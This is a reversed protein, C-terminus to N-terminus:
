AFLCVACKGQEGGLRLDLPAMHVYGPPQVPALILNAVPISLHGLAPRSPGERFGVHHLWFSSWAFIRGEVGKEWFGEETSPLGRPITRCQGSM